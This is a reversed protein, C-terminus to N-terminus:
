ENWKLVIVKEQLSGTQGPIRLERTVAEVPVVVPKTTGDQPVITISGDKMKISLYYELEPYKIKDASDKLTKECTYILADATNKIEIMEEKPLFGEKEISYKNM